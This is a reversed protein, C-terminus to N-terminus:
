LLSPHSTESVLSSNRPCRRGSCVEKALVTWRCVNLRIMPSRTVVFHSHKRVPFKATPNKPLPTDESNYKGAKSSYLNIMVGAAANNEWGAGSGCNATVTLAVTCNIPDLGKGTIYSKMPICGTCKNKQKNNGNQCLQCKTTDGAGVKTGGGLRGGVVLRFNEVRFDPRTSLIEVGLSEPDFGGNNWRQTHYVFILENADDFWAHGEAMAANWPTSEHHVAVPNHKSRQFTIGDTSFAFGINEPENSNPQPGPPTLGVQNAQCRRGCHRPRPNAKSASAFTDTTDDGVRDDDLDDDESTGDAGTFFLYFLNNKYVVKCESYGGKAWATSTGAGPDLIYQKFAFPGEPSKATWLALPGQDDEGVPAEVYLWYENNTHPGFLMSGTYFGDTDFPKKLKKDQAAESAIIFGSGKKGGKYYKTWPGELATATAYGVCFSGCDSGSVNFSSDAISGGAGIYWMQWHSGNHLVTGSAALGGDWDQTGGKPLIPEGHKIWPGLPHDATALGVQYDSDHQLGHYIFRFKGDDDQFVGGAVELEGSEWPEPGVVILPNPGPIQYFKLAACEDLSACPWAASAYAIGCLLIWASKM